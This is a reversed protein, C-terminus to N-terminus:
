VVKAFQRLKSRSRRAICIPLTRLMRDLAAEERGRAPARVRSRAPLARFRRAAARDLPANQKREHQALRPRSVAALPDAIEPRQDLRNEVDSDEVNDEVVHQADNREAVAQAINRAVPM